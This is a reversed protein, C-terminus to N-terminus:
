QMLLSVLPANSNAYVLPTATSPFAGFAQSQYYLSTQVGSGNFYNLCITNLISRLAISNNSSQIAVWIQKSNGNVTIPTSFTYDKPGNTVASLNGSDDLRNNPLGNSDSYVGLRINQAAMGGTVEQRIATFTQTENIPIPIYIIGGTWGTTSTPIGSFPITKYKGTYFGQHAGKNNLQEQADSTLNKIYASGDAVTEIIRSYDLNGYNVAKIKISYILAIDSDTYTGSAVWAGTSVNLSATVITGGSTKPSEFTPKNSGDIKSLIANGSLGFEGANITAGTPLTLSGSAGSIIEYYTIKYENNELNLLRVPINPDQGNTWLKRSNKFGAPM